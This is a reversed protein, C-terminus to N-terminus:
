ARIKFVYSKVLKVPRYSQEAKPLGPVGMDSEKTIYKYGKFLEEACLKDFYQYLGKIKPYAKEAPQDSYVYKHVIALIEATTDSTVLKGNGDTALLAARYDAVGKQYARVFKEVVDRREEDTAGSWDLEYGSRLADRVIREVIAAALDHNAWLDELMQDDLKGMAAFEYSTFKDSSYGAGTVSSVFADINKVMNEDRKTAADTM